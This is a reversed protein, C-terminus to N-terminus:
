VYNLFCKIKSCGKLKKIESKGNAVLSQGRRRNQWSVSMTRTVKKYKVESVSCFLSVAALVVDYEVEKTLVSHMYLTADPNEHPM